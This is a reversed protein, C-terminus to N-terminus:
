ECTENGELNDGSDVDHQKKREYDDIEIDPKKMSFETNCRYSFFTTGM